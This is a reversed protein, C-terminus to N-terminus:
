EGLAQKATLWYCRKCERNEKNPNRCGFVLCGKSRCYILGKGVHIKELAERLRKNEAQATLFSMALEKNHLQSRGGFSIIIIENEIDEVRVGRPIGVQLGGVQKYRAEFEHVSDIKYKEQSM